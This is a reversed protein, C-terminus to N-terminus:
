RIPATTGRAGPAGPVRRRTAVAVTAIAGHGDGADGDEGGSASRIQASQEGGFAFAPETPRDGGDDAVLRRNGREVDRRRMANGAHDNRMVGIGLAIGEVDREPLRDIRGLGVEDDQRAEHPDETRIQDPAVLAPHEVNM